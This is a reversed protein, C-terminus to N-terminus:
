YPKTERRFLPRSLFSNVGSLLNKGKLSSAKESLNYYHHAPFCFLFDCCNDEKYLPTFDILLM